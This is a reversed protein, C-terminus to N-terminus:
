YRIYGLWSMASIVVAGIGVLLRLYAVLHIWPHIVSISPDEPKYHVLSAFM